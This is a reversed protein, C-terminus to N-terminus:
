KKLFFLLGLGIAAPLLLGQINFGGTKPPQQQQFLQWVPAGGKTLILNGDDQLSLEVVGPGPPIDVFKKSKGAFNSLTLGDQGVTFQTVSNTGEFQKDGTATGYDWILYRQDPPVLGPGDTIVKTPDNVGYIMLYGGANMWLVAKKNPSFIWEGYRNLGRDSFLSTGATIVNSAASLMSLMDESIYHPIM